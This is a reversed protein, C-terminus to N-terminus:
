QSMFHLVQTRTGARGGAGEVAMLRQTNSLKLNRVGLILILVIRHARKARLFRSSCGSVVLIGDAKNTGHIEGNRGMIVNKFQFM